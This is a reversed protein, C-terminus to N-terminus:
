RLARAIDLLETRPNVYIASADYKTASAALADLKTADLGWDEALEDAKVREPSYATMAGTGQRSIGWYHKTLPGRRPDENATKLQLALQSSATLIKVTPEDESCALVNMAIKPRPRDGLIACLPCRDAPDGTYEPDAPEYNLCVFSKKGEREIWHQQYVKFPGDELFKIVQPTETVKLDEPYDNKKSGSKLMAEAADWGAQVSTGHKPKADPSDVALAMPTEYDAADMTPNQMNPIRESM